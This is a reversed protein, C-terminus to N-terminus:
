RCSALACVRRAASSRESDRRRSRRAGDGATCNSSSSTSSTRSLKPGAPCFALNFGDLDTEDIWAELQDGVTAPSRVVVPGIGSISM